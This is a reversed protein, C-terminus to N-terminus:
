CLHEAYAGLTRAGVRHWAADAARDASARGMSGALGPTTLVELLAAALAAPDGPAV